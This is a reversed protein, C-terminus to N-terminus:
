LAPYDAWESPPEQFTLELGDFPRMLAFVRVM